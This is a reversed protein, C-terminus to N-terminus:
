LNIILHYNINFFFETLTLRLARSRDLGMLTLFQEGVLLIREALPMISSQSETSLKSFYSTYGNPYQSPHFRQDLSRLADTATVIRKNLTTDGIQERWVPTQFSPDLFGLASNTM